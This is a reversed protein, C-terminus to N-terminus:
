DEEDDGPDLPVTDAQVALDILLREHQPPSQHDSRNGRHHEEPDVPRSKVRALENIELESPFYSILLITKAAFLLHFM